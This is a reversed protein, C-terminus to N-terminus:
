ILDYLLSQLKVLRVPVIPLAAKSSLLVILKATVMITATTFADQWPCEMLMLVIIGTSTKPSMRLYLEEIKKQKFHSSVLRASVFQMQAALVVM